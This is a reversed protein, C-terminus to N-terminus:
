TGLYIGAVSFDDTHEWGNEVCFKSLFRKCRRQLFEGPYSKIAFLQDLVDEVPVPVGNKVFSQVGDSMILVMDHRARNFNGHASLDRVSITDELRSWAGGVCTGQVVTVTQVKDFYTEQHEKSRTYNLYYPSNDNFERSYYLIDGDLLRYAIVGDGSHYTHGYQGKIAVALLTADLATGPFGMLRNMAAADAIVTEPPMLGDALMPIVRRASHVLFRAGFDTYPSGPKGPLTIGSCGDSLIAWQTSADSGALAYDQCIQHTSGMRFCFDESM